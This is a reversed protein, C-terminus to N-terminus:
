AKDLWPTLTPEPYLRKTHDRLEQSLRFPDAESDLLELDIENGCALTPRRVQLNLNVDPNPDAAQLSGGKTTRM